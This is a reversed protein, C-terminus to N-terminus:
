RGVSELFRIGWAPNRQRLSRDFDLNGPATPVGHELYPGYTVLMGQPALYRAAGRMLAACAAWPAIHLMNACFIADFAQTFQAGDSPWMPAMVDLVVPPRANAVGAQRCWAAISGFADAVADSPQWAWGPLEAAFFALHQGTGSAIELAVGHAPLVQQLAELIPQRNREAAASQRPTAQEPAGGPIGIPPIAGLPTSNPKCTM